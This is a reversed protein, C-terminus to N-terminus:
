QSMEGLELIESNNYSNFLGRGMISREAFSVSASSVLVTKTLVMM